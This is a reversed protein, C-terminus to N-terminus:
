GKGQGAPVWALETLMHRFLSPCVRDRAGRHGSQQCHFVARTAPEYIAGWNDALENWLIRMREADDEQILEPLRDLVFSRRLQQSAPHGQECVSAAEVAPDKWWQRWHEGLSRHPHRTLDGTTHERQEAHVADIRPHAAVGVWELFEYEASRLDSDSPPDTALFEDEGFPGYLRELADTGTWSESFYIRNAARLLPRAGRASTAPLLVGGIRRRLVPDGARQSEYYARLGRM